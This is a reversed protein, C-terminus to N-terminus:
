PIVAQTAGSQFASSNVYSPEPQNLCAFRNEKSCTSIAPRGIVAFELKGDVGHEFM